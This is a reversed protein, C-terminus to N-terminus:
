RFLESHTGLNSFILHEDELDVKYTLLFDGGIHCERYDKFKGHLQHDRWKPELPSDNAILLLMVEKLANMDYKLSHSYNEWSKLFSKSYAFIRPLNTSKEERKKKASKKLM